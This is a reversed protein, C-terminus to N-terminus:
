YSCVNMTPLYLSWVEINRFHPSFIWFTKKMTHVKMGRYMWLMIKWFLQKFVLSSKLYYLSPCPFYIFKGIEFDVLQILLNMGMNVVLRPFFFVSLVHLALYIFYSYAWTCLWDSNWIFSFSALNHLLVFFDLLCLSKWLRIAVPLLFESFMEMGQGLMLQFFLLSIKTRSEKKPKLLYIISCSRIKIPWGFYPILYETGWFLLRKM